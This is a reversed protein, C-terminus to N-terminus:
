AGAADGGAGGGGGYAYTYTGNDYADGGFGGIGGIVINGTVMLNSFEATHNYNSPTSGGSMAIYMGGAFADGGDGADHAWHYSYTGHAADGADGGVGGRATNSDLECNTLTVSGLGQSYIGAGGASGGDGNGGGIRYSSDPVSSIDNGGAGGAGGTARCNSVVVNSLNFANYRTASAVVIGGGKAAGGYGGDGGSNSVTTENDAGDGGAGGVVQCNTVVLDTLTIDSDGDFYLGGGYASSGSDGDASAGGMGSIGNDGDAGQVLGNQITMRELTYDGDSAFEFIRDTGNGDIITSTTGNGRITLSNAASSVDLDTMSDGSDSVTLKYTGGPLNIIVDDSGGAANALTIAERLSLFNDSSKVVDTTTDVDYTVTAATAFAMMSSVLGISCTKALPNGYMNPTNKFQFM